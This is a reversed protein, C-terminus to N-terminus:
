FYVKSFVTSKMKLTPCSKVCRDQVWGAPVYGWFSTLAVHHHWMSTLVVDNWRRAGVPCYHLTQVTPTIYICTNRCIRTNLLHMWHVHLQVHNFMQSIAVTKKQDGKCHSFSNSCIIALVCKTICYPINLTWCMKMLSAIEQSKRARFNGKIKGLYFVKKFLKDRKKANYITSFLLFLFDTFNWPSIKFTQSKIWTKTNVVFWWRLNYESRTEYRDDFMGRWYFQGWYWLKFLKCYM